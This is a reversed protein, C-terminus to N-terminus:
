ITKNVMVCSTTVSSVEHVHNHVMSEGSSTLITPSASKRSPAWKRTNATGLRPRSNVYPRRSVCDSTANGALLAASDANARFITLKERFICQEPLITDALDTDSITKGLWLKIINSDKKPSISIGRIDYKGFAPEFAGSVLLCCLNEWCASAEPKNLKWSIRGGAINAEDSWDPTIDGRMIFLMGNSVMRPRDLLAKVCAWYHNVTSFSTIRYWASTNIQRGNRMVVTASDLGSATDVLGSSETDVNTSPNRAANQNHCWITYTYPLKKDMVYSTNLFQHAVPAAIDTM